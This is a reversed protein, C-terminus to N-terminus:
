NPTVERPSYSINEWRTTITASEILDHVSSFFYPINEVIEQDSMEHDRLAQRDGDFDDEHWEQSVVITIIVRKAQEETKRVSLNNSRTSPSM